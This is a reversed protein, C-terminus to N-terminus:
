VTDDDDTVGAATGAIDAAKVFRAPEAASLTGYETGAQAVHIGNEAPVISENFFEAISGFRDIGGKRGDDARRHRGDDSRVILRQLPHCFLFDIQRDDGDIRRAHIIVILANFM